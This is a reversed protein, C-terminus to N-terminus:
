ELVSTATTEPPLAATEWKPQTRNLFATYHQNMVEQMATQMPLGQCRRRLMRYFQGRPFNHARAYAAASEYGRQCLAIQEDFIIPLRQKIQEM